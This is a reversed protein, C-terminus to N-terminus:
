WSDLSVCWDNMFNLDGSANWGAAAAHLRSAFDAPGGYMALIYVSEYSLVNVAHHMM